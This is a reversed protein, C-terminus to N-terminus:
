RWARVADQYGSKAVAIDIERRGCVITKFDKKSLDNLLCIVTSALYHMPVEATKSRGAESWATQFSSWVLGSLASLRFGSKFNEPVYNSVFKQDTDAPYLTNDYQILCEAIQQDNIIGVYALEHIMFRGVIQEQEDDLLEAKKKKLTQQGVFICFLRYGVADLENSVNLLWQFHMQTLRQAEDVFFVFTGISSRRARAIIWESLRDRRDAATGKKAYERHRACRLLFQFFERETAIRQDRLPIEIWPIRGIFMNMQGLVWRTASTKGLRPRGYVIAGLAGSSLWGHLERLYTEAPPTKILFARGALVQLSLKRRSAEDISYLQNDM